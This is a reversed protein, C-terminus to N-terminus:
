SSVADADAIDGVGRGVNVTCLLCSFSLYEQATSRFGAWLPFHGDKAIPMAIM